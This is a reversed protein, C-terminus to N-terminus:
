GTTLLGCYGPLRHRRGLFLANNIAVLYGGDKVLPRVKNILRTSANVQDVVGKETISFVPPDLIAIDFQEGSRKFRACANFFDMALLKMKKPDLRNLRCSEKALALFKDSRDVQVVQSAGGALAAIGLSGTYAFLNLVSRGSAAGLLWARLRRTDLYLSADQNMRLDVAYQVGHESIQPAPTRGFTLRGCRELPESSWRVKQVVCDLWPLRALLYGQARDLMLHDPPNAYDYLVLTHAYIDAALGPFGEYFGAFLRFASLHGPDVLSSRAQVAKELRSNLDDVTM